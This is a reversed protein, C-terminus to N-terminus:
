CCSAVSCTGVPNVDVMTCHCYSLLYWSPQRGGYHLPLLQASSSFPQSVQICCKPCRYDAPAVEDDDENEGPPQLGICDYHFWDNCHDCSLMPRLEDYPQRCLCYIKASEQMHVMGNSLKSSCKVAVVACNATASSVIASSEQWYISCCMCHCICAM